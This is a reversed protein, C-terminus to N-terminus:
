KWLRIRFVVPMWCVERLASRSLRPEVHLRCCGQQVM